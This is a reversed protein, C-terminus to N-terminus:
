ETDVSDENRARFYRRIDDRLGISRETLQYLGQWDEKLDLDPDFNHRTLIDWREVYKRDKKKGHWSHLITGPVAGIDRRIYKEARDQWIMIKNLYSPAIKGPVSERASGILALAMHHDGAGLVATDILGGVADWAERRCAWAFGPHFFTYGKKRPAGISHMYCFSKHAQIVQGEPGMDLADQWPQVLMYHQLAHLTDHVWTKNVFTVDADIWAVYEWDDPLRQVALNIMNEKHWIEDYSRLQLVHKNPKTVMFPRDGFAIEVTHLVVNSHARMEAKFKEYLDYRSKYRVPNSIVAIVHLKKPHRVVPHM